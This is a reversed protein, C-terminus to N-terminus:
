FFFSAGRNSQKVYHAEAEEELRQQIFCTTEDKFKGPVRANSPDHMPHTPAYGSMDFMDKDSAMDVYVDNTRVHYCLSHYGYVVAQM